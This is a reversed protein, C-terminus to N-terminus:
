ILYRAPAHRGCRPPAQDRGNRGRPAAMVAVLLQMATQVRYVDAVVGMTAPFILFGISSTGLAVAGMPGSYQPFANTAWALLTPFMGAVLFGIVLVAGLMPYGTTLVFAVYLAGVAVIASGLVLDLNSFRDTAWGFLATGPHVDRPVRVALPKGGLTPAVPERLVPALHLYRGRHVRILLMAVAMSAVTPHAFLPRIEGLELEQENEIGDPVDLRWVLVILPLFSFGLLVYALRWGHVALVATALLPGATAGIAWVMDETNYM